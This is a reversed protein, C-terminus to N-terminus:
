IGNEVNSGNTDTGGESEGGTDYGGTEPFQPIPDDPENYSPYEGPGYPQEDGGGTECMPMVWSGNGDYGYDAHFTMGCGTTDNVFVGDSPIKSQNHIEGSVDPLYVIWGSDKLAQAWLLGDQTPYGNSGGLDLVRPSSNSVNGWEDINRNFANLIRDIESTSLQCNNASFRQISTPVKFVGVTLSLNNKFGRDSVIDCVVTEIEGTGGGTPALPDSPISDSQPLTCNVAYALNVGVHYVVLGVCLELSPITGTLMVKPNAKSYTNGNDQESVDYSQILNRDSIDHIEGEFANRHMQAHLINPGLEPFKGTFNNDYMFAVSLVSIGNPFDGPIGSKSLYLSGYSKDMTPNMRRNITGVLDGSVGLPNANSVGDWWFTLNELDKIESLGTWGTTFENELSVTIQEGPTHGTYTHSNVGSITTSSTGDGWHVVVGSGSTWSVTDGGAKDSATFTLLPIRLPDAVPYTFAQAM